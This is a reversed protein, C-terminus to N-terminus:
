VVSKRDADPSLNKEPFLLYLNVYSGELVLKRALSIGDGGNNGKGCFISFSKNSFQTKFFDSIINLISNTGNEMLVISPFGIKTIAFNDLNRIQETTFLSKM